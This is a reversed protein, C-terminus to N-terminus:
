RDEGARGIFSDYLRSDAGADGGSLLKKAALVALEGIETRAGSLADEREKEAAKRANELVKKAQDDAEKMMRESQAKADSKAKELIQEAQGDADKLAEEYRKKLEESEAERKRANELSGEILAKRQEMISTVPKILFKKLLVYLIILNIITWVLNINISLM